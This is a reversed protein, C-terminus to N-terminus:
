LWVAWVAWGGVSGCPMKVCAGTAIHQDTYSTGLMGVTGLFPTGDASLGGVVLSNWLPDM